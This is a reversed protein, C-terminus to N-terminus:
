SSYIPITERLPSLPPDLKQESFSTRFWLEVGLIMWLSAIHFRYDDTGNRYSHEMTRYDTWVKEGDVWGMSAVSLSRFLTMISENMLTQAFICSFDAKDARERVSTPLM